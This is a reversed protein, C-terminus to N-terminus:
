GCGDEPDLTFSGANARTELEIRVPATEFGPTSWTSGDQVLGHGEYDYSALISEGTHLRLAIGPAACLEVSGANAQISGTMSVAPLTLGLSGANLVVDITEVATTSGMDVTSSGANVQLDFRDVTAGALDVTADGANLQIDVDLQPTQPLTLRWTDRDGLAFPGGQNRSHVTLSSDTSEITPGIGNADTGEVRWGSGAATAVTLNGCNLRVDVSGGPALTGDRSPFAQTGGHQGCSGGAFGTVGTSLLGGVMLGFTAAVILGGLFDFRTRRLVLGVGIGILILPWLSWLRGIQDSDLYGARAALPVAGALILFVGWGLLGRRIHVICRYGLRARGCGAFSVIELLRGHALRAVLRDVPIV